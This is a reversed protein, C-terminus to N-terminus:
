KILDRLKYKYVEKFLKNLSSRTLSRASGNDDIILRSDTGYKYKTYKSFNGNTNILKGDPGLFTGSKFHFLFVNDNIM